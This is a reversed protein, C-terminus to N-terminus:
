ALVEVFPVVVEELHIGGHSIAEEGEPGFMERGGPFVAVQKGLLYLDEYIVVNKGAAFDEALLRNPFLLARRAREEVLWRNAQYGNGRCWLSGHDSALYLRYGERLFRRVTEALGSRELHAALGRQMMEKSGQVDLAAHALDDVLNCVLALYEYSLYEDKWALGANLFVGARRRKGEPWKERVFDGFGKEEGVRESEGACGSFLARRSVRTLTPVLAFVPTVNFRGIGRNGLYQALCCWEQFGMGDMCILVKKGDPQYALFPLVKDVTAPRTLYSEYSLDRYGTLIYATFAETIKHDLMAVAPLRRSVHCCWYSLEGWLPAIARWDVPSRALLEEIQRVLAQCRVETATQYEEGQELLSAPFAMKRGGDKARGGLWEAIVAKTEEENLPQLMQEKQQYAEFVRQYQDVPLSELGSPHLKPFIEKLQWSVVDSRTEVDYPLHGQEPHKFIVLRWGAREKLFRRLALESVYDHLAFAEELAARLEPVRGLRDHDIVVIVDHYSQKIKNVLKAYWKGEM